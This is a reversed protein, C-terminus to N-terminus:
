VNINIDINELHEQEYTQTLQKLPGEINRVLSSPGYLSINWPGQADQSGPGVRHRSERHRLLGITTKLYVSLSTMDGDM